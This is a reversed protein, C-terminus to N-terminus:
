EVYAGRARITFILRMEAFDKLTLTIIIAKPLIAEKATSNSWVEVEQGENNVFGLRLRTVNQLLVRAVSKTEPARDLVPWTIRYLTHDKLTYAVRQLSSRASMQLPNTYGARTFEFETRNPILLAPLAEGSTDKVPRAVMQTVDRRLITVATVMEMLRQDSTKLQRHTNLVTRLVVASSAAVLAFIALAILIELLTFGRARM